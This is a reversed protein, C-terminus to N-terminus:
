QQAPGQMSPDRNETSAQLLQEEEEYQREQEEWDHKDSSVGFVLGSDLPPTLDIETLTADIMADVTLAQFPNLSFLDSHSPQTSLIRKHRKRSPAGSFDLSTNSPSSFMPQVVLPAPEALPAQPYSTSTWM